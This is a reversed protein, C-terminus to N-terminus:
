STGNDGAQKGDADCSSSNDLWGWWSQGLQGSSNWWCALQARAPRTMLRTLVTRCAVSCCPENRNQAGRPRHPQERIAARVYLYSLTAWVVQGKDPHPPHPNESPVSLITLNLFAATQRHPARCGVFHALLPGTKDTKDAEVCEDVHEDQQGTYTWLRGWMRM